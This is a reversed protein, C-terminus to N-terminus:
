EKEGGLSAKLKKTLETNRDRAKKEQKDIVQQRLEIKEKESALEVLAEEKTKEVLVPGAFRYVKGKAKEVAERAAANEGLALSAQQRQMGLMQLQQQLGQYEMIEKKQESTLEAM